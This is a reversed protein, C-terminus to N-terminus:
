KNVSILDSRTLTVNGRVGPANMLHWAVYQEAYLEGSATCDLPVIVKLGRLSAGIATGLVAGETAIGTLIIRNVGKSKLFAELDTSYFKDVGASV